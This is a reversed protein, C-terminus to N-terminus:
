RGLIKTKMIYYLKPSVSALILQLKRIVSCNKSKILYKVNDKLAKRILKLVSNDKCSASFYLTILNAAQFCLKERAAAAVNCNNSERIILDYTNLSDMQKQSFAIHTASGERQYYHYVQKTPDFCVNKCHCLYRYAFNLDEIAGSNDLFYLHHKRIIDLRYLKNWAFGCMGHSDLVSIKANDADLEFLGNGKTITRCGNSDDVYFGLSVLDPKKSDQLKLFEEIYNSEVWDDPDPFIIFEGNASDIGTNRASCLGGNKKHIVTIFDSFDASYRDCIAASSDTSGDDILIIEYDKSTQNMLTDMCRPLYEEMNYVPVIVSVRKGHEVRKVGKKIIFDSLFLYIDAQRSLNKM